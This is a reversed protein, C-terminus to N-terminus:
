FLSQAKEYSEITGIDYRFGTFLYAYVYSREILWPIFYGPADPNNGEELYTKFLPLTEKQYIYIPPVALNSKPQKPKEEFSTVLQSSDMEIVGTQKLEEEDSLKHVTISDSKVRRYFDVFDTLKLDFINDGALVLIEEDIGQTEIAYEIDAIAGLRDDNSTTQDNVVTIKQSGQYGKSWQEFDNAFKNNTVIYVHDIEKVEQVKDMIHELIPKGGVELLPKAKNKTLPYLRTAYGAALIIAKM